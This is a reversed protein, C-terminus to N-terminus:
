RCNFNDVGMCAEQFMAIDIQLCSTDLFVMIHEGGQLLQSKGSCRDYGCRFQYSLERSNWRSVIQVICALEMTRAQNCIRQLIFVSVDRLWAFACVM